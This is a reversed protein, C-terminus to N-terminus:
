SRPSTSGHLDNKSDKCHQIGLEDKLQDLTNTNGSTKNMKLEISRKAILAKESQSVSTDTM